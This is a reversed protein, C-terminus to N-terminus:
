RGLYAGGERVRGEVLSAITISDLAAEIQRELVVWAPRSLCVAKRPCRSAPDKGPSKLCGVPALSGDMARVVEGVTLEGPNKALRFGGNPGRETEVLGAKKLKHFILALYRVSICEQEAIRSLPVVGNKGALLALACLARVGYRSRTSLKM